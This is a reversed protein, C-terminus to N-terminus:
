VERIPNRHLSLVTRDSYVWGVFVDPDTAMSSIYIYICSVWSGFEMNCLIPWWDTGNRFSCFVKPSIKSSRLDVQFSDNDSRMWWSTMVLSNRGRRRSLDVQNIYSSSFTFPLDFFQRLFVRSCWIQVYYILVYVIHTRLRDLVISIYVTFVNYLVYVIYIYMINVINHIYILYKIDLISILLSM